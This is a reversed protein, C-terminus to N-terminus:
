SSKSKRKPKRNASAIPPKLELRQSLESLLKIFGAETRALPEDFKGLSILHQFLISAEQKLKRGESFGYKEILKQTDALFLAEFSKGATSPVLSALNAVENDTTGYEKKYRSAERQGASDDDLLAVFPIAWGRFLSILTSLDGAGNVPFVALKPDARLRKMFYLFPHYDFKGELFVAPGRFQMPSMQYRLSDFVPQFYTTRSPFQSVFNRYRIAEIENPKTDFQDFDESSLDIAKNDIIYAKELWLPNVMYHSHTSYVILDNPGCIKEFSELLKIQAGSHLHSAPEDFLYIAPRGESGSRRFQTFLLFSFFWRFGLSREKLLYKSQGDIIFLEVYVKNGDSPDFNWAFEIRKNLLKRGFIQDWAGMITRSAENSVERVVTDIDGEISSGLLARFFSELGSKEASEKVRKVIHKDISYQPDVTKLIDQFVKRYYSNHVTENEHEELYIKDPIDFLFTPFYIVAPLLTNLSKVVSLWTTDSNGNASYPKTGNKKKYKVNFTWYNNQKTLNSDTFSYRQEVKIQKPFAMEDILASSSLRVHKAIKAVDEDNLVVDCSVSINDTFRGRRHKPVFSSTDVKTYYNEVLTHTETDRSVFNSLAELVTTKGSENLGILTVVQGPVDNSLDIETDLIGRFNRIRAKTIKM